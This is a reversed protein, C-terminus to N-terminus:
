EHGRIMEATELECMKAVTRGLLLAGAVRKDGTWRGSGIAESLLEVLQVTGEYDIDGGVLLDVLEDRDRSKPSHIIEALKPGLIKWFVENDNFVKEIKENLETISNLVESHHYCRQEIITVRTEIRRVFGYYGGLTTFLFGLLLIIYPTYLAM